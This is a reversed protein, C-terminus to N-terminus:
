NTEVNTQKKTRENTQKSMEENAQENRWKNTQRNMLKKTTRKNQYPFGLIKHAFIFQSPVCSVETKSSRLISM